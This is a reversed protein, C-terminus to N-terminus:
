DTSCRPPSGRTSISTAFDSPAFSGATRVSARRSISRSRRPRPGCGPAIPAHRLWPGPLLRRRPREGLEDDDAGACLGLLEAHLLVRREHRVAAQAHDLGALDKAGSVGE